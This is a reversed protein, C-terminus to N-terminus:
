RGSRCHRWIVSCPAWRRHRWIVSHPAWVMASVVQLRPCGVKGVDAWRGCVRDSVCPLWCSRTRSIPFPYENRALIPLVPWPTRTSHDSKPVVDVGRLSAYVPDNVDVRVRPGVSRSLGFRHAVIRSSALAQRGLKCFRPATWNVGGDHSISIEVTPDTEQPEAGAAIGVGTVMDLQIRAVQVRDPFKKALGTEVRYKLPEGGETYNSADIRYITTSKTDGVLWKDFAYHPFKGRWRAIGYSAREHWKKTNLDFVWTWSASSVAIMPHGRVVFCGLELTTKDTVAEILTDLDPPSIKSTSYGSVMHVANDNGVFALAFGVDDQSFGNEFGTVATATALGKPFIAIREFPFPAAGTNQWVETTETGFLYLRGAWAVARVLGDPKYEAKGFSLASVATANLESAFCRGDGIPFVFYGDIATVGAPVPLDSNPYAAILTDTFTFAGNATVAVKDPTPSRNNAAFQM